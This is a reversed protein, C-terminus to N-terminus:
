KETHVVTHFISETVVATVTVEVTHTNYSTHTRTVWEPTMDGTLGFTFDGQPAGQTDADVPQAAQNMISQQIAELADIQEGLGYMGDWGNQLWDMGCTKKDSGGSCSEAAAQASADLIQQARTAYDTNPLLLTIEGLAKLLVSKFVRQDNNCETNACTYETVINNVILNQEIGNMYKQLEDEWKSDGTAKYLYTCGVMMMGYNYSWSYGNITYCENNGINAGDYVVYYDDKQTVFYSDKLWDSVRQCTEYYMENGTYKGLRAGLAFLGANSATSKYDAGSMNALIQWVLGGGCHDANWREWVTNYVAQAIELYDHEEGDKAPFGREAAEMVTFGWFLQDDNAEVDSQNAIMYNYDPGAQHYISDQLMSVYTDNDCISWTDIMASFALGAEWWYYPQQFYGVTGGYRYGTYYDMIGDIIQTAASCVSDKDGLTLDLATAHSALLMAATYVSIATRM